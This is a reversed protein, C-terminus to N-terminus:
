GGARVLGEFGCPHQYEVVVSVWGRKTEGGGVEEGVMGARLM